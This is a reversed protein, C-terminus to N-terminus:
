ILVSSVLKKIFFSNKSSVWILSFCRLFSNSHSDSKKFFNLIPDDGRSSIRVGSRPSAPPEADPNPRRICRAPIGAWTEGPGIRTFKPVVAGAAVIANEGITVGALIVANVGITVRNGIHIAHHALRGGEMVHATVTAQYGFIVDRGVRIFQPDALACRSPYSNPGIELGWLRGFLRTLPPPIVGSFITPYYLFFMFPLHFVHYVWEGPSDPTIEGAPLPRWARAWRYFLVGFALYSFCFIGLLSLSGLAPAGRSAAWVSLVAAGWWVTLVIMMAIRQGLPINRM